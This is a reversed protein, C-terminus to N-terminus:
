KEKKLFDFKLISFATDVVGGIMGFLGKKTKNTDFMPTAPEEVATKPTKMEKPQLFEAETKMRVIDSKNQVVTGGGIDVTVTNGDDRIVKGNIKGGNKLYIIDASATSLFMTSSIFIVLVYKLATTM